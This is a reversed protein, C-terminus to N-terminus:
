EVCRDGKKDRSNITGAGAVPLSEPLFAAVITVDDSKAVPAM